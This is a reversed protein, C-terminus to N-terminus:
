VVYCMTRDNCNERHDHHERYHHNDGDGARELDLVLCEDASEVKFNDSVRPFLSKM